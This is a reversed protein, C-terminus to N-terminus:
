FHSKSSSPSFEFNKIKTEESTVHFGLICKIVDTLDDKQEETRFTAGNRQEETGGNRREETGGNGREVTEKNRQEKVGRNRQENRREDTGRNSKEKTGGIKIKKLTYM